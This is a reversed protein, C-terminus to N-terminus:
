SWGYECQTPTRPSCISLPPASVSKSYFRIQAFVLRSRMEDVGFYVDQSAKQVDMKMGAIPDSSEVM